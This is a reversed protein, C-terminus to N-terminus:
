PLAGSAMSWSYPAVGGAASLNQSYATGATGSPLPSPTTIILPVAIDLLFVKQSSFAPSSSDTAQITFSSTGMGTPTGAIPAGALSLGAPLSGSVLSWSYPTTGGSASLTLSYGVGPTGPPLPSATTISPPGLVCL